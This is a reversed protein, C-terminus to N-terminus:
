RKWVRKRQHEVVKEEHGTAFCRSLVQVRVLEDLTLSMPSEGLAINDLVPYHHKTPRARRGIQVELPLVLFAILAKPLPPALPCRRNDLM